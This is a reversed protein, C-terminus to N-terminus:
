NLTNTYSMSQAVQQPLTNLLFPVIGGFKTGGLPVNIDPLLPVNPLLLQSLPVTASIEHPPVLLGTLPLHAITPLTVPLGALTVTVPLPQDIIVEGNLFGDLVYAPTNGIASAAGLLDGNALSTSFFTAGEALGDLGAFPPGLIAFGLQLPLGFIAEGALTPPLDLVFRFDASVGANTLTGIGNALNRAMMGPISNAPLLSATGQAQQGIATLIPLLAGAPGEVGIPGTINITPPLELPVDIKLGSTDFGTIFLDILGHAGYQVAQHYNGQQIAVGALDLDHQFTPFTQQLGAGVAAFQTGLVDAFATAGRVYTEVQTALNFAALDRLALEINTPVNAPFGQVFLALDNAALQAYFSQNVAIQSLIPFPRYNAGLSNLNRATNELLTLYPNPASVISPAVLAPPFLSTGIGGLIPGLGPLQGLGGLIPSLAPSLPALLGGTGGTLPGLLGTLGGSSVPLGGGGGGTTGGLLGGLLDGLPNTPAASPFGFGGSLLTREANAIEANVYATAGGNLLRVFEANFAAAQSNVAQFDQGFAGFIRAIAASIEDSAAAAIGTTPGAAAAAAESLSSRLGALQGAAASVFDTEAVVFSM